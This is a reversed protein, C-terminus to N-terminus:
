LVPSRFFYGQVGSGQVRSRLYHKKKNGAYGRFRFDNLFEGPSTRDATELLSIFCPDVMVQVYKEDRHHPNFLALWECNTIATVASFIFEFSVLRGVLFLGAKQAFITPVRDVFAEEVTWITTFFESM